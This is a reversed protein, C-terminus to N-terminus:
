HIFRLANSISILDHRYLRHEIAAAFKSHSRQEKGRCRKGKAAHSAVGVAIAFRDSEFSLGVGKQATAVTEASAIRVGLGAM